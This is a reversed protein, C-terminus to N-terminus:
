NYWANFAHHSTQEEIPPLKMYDGYLKRLLSDYGAPAIFDRGEFEDKVTDKFWKSEFVRSENGVFIGTVTGIYETFCDDKKHVGFSNLKDILTDRTWFSSVLRGIGLMINKYWVREKSITLNKLLLIENYRFAKKMRKKAVKYDDALNDLPFVDIYVGIHYDINVEEKMVNSKNILKAFSLYYDTDIEHSIAKLNSAHKDNNFNAIFKNYDERPMMVDIDDDWPIYGKHRIAGILTGYALYYTLDNQVCYDDLANLLGLQIKKLEKIDITKKM